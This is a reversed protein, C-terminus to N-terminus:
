GSAGNRRRRPLRPQTAEMRPLPPRELKPSKRLQPAKGPKVYGLGESRRKGFLEPALYKGRDRPRKLPEVKIRHRAAWADNRIGTVQWFVEQGPAGGAIGFRGGDVKRAVHLEPAASGVATLQVRHDTNLAPDYRPLRVTARGNADLRVSGGYVNLMDPSLVSAHTLYRNAPDQPHDIRVAQAASVTEGFVYLDNAVGADGNFYGAWAPYAAKGYVGGRNPDNGAAVEGYVGYTRGFGYVGTPGGTGSVATITASAVVGFPGRGYVGYSNATGLGHGYVGYDGQGHLGIGNLGTTSLGLIGTPGSGTIGRITGVGVVGYPGTGYVGNSTSGVNGRGYVGYDGQGYVGQGLSTASRGWVGTPGNGTVGTSTGDAVVGYPGKGYVGYSGGNANGNGYVGYDGQGFVGTGRTSNSVGYVGYTFGTGATAAGQVGYGSTSNSYGIVGTNAGTTATAAGVVGYGATSATAGRVGNSPGSTATVEGFVGTGNGSRGWVGKAGAGSTAVGFVGSGNAANSQGQVGATSAGAGAHAVLGVIAKASVTAQTTRITTANTANNVAGLVVDAAAVRDPRVLAQTGVAGVAAVAATGISRRLVSRRSEVVPTTLQGADPDHALEAV